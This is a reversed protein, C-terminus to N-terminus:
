PNVALPHEAARGPAMKQAPTLTPDGVVFMQHLVQGMTPEPYAAAAATQGAAQTTNPVAAPQTAAGTETGNGVAAAGAPPRNAAAPAGAPGMFTPLVGSTISGPGFLHVVIGSPPPTPNPRALALGAPLALILAYPLRSPKM